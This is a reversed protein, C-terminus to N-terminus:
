AFTITIAGTPEFTVKAAYAGDQAAMEDINKVRASGGYTVGSGPSVLSFTAATGANYATLLAAHGTLAKDWVLDCAFEGASFRGSALFEPWGGTSDHATTEALTKEVEPYEVETIKTISQSNYTLAGGWGGKRAM